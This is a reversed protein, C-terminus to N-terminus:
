SLNSNEILNSIRLLKYQYVNPYDVVLGTKKIENTTAYPYNILRHEEAFPNFYYYCGIREFEFLLLGNCSGLIEISFCLMTM